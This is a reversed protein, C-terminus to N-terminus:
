EAAEETYGSFARAEVASAECTEGNLTVYVHLPSDDIVEYSFAYANGEEDSAVATITGDGSETQTLNFKTEYLTEDGVAYFGFIMETCDLSVGYTYADGEPSLGVYWAYENIADEMNPDARVLTIEGAESSAATQCSSVPSANWAQVTGDEATVTLSGADDIVYSGTLLELTGDVQTKAITADGNETDLRFTYANGDLYGQWIRIGNDVQADTEQTQEETTQADEKASQAQEDAAQTEGPAQTEEAAQAAEGAQGQEEAAQVEVAAEANNEEACVGTSVAMTMAASCLLLFAKKM